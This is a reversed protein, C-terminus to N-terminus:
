GLCSVSRFLFSSDIQSVGIQFLCKVEVLPMPSLHESYFGAGVKEFEVFM